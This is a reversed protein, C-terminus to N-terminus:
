WLRAITEGHEQWFQKTREVTRLWEYFLGKANLVLGGAGHIRELGFTHGTGPSRTADALVVVQYGHQRLGIASQAVCVDTELGVLIATRRGTQEIADMIAPDVALGYVMKDHVPTGPPLARAVQPDVSGLDAIDEATVVLPVDLCRAVRILWCIRDLLPGQQAPSLKELFATQVDIVVLVSDRVDVLAGELGL